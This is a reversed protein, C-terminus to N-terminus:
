GSQFHELGVAGCLQPMDCLAFCGVSKEGPADILALFSSRMRLTLPYDSKAKVTIEQLNRVMQKRKQSYVNNKEDINKQLVAPRVFFICSVMKTCIKSLM